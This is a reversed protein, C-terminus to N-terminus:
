QTKWYEPTNCMRIFENRENITKEDNRDYNSDLEKMAADFEPTYWWTGHNTSLNYEHRRKYFLKYRTTSEESKKDETIM